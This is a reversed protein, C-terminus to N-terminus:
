LYFLSLYSCLVIETSCKHWTKFGKTFDVGPRCFFVQAEALGVSGTKKKHRGQLKLQRGTFCLFLKM